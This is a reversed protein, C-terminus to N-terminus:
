MRDNWSFVIYSVQIALICLRIFKDITPMNNNTYNLYEHYAIINVNDQFLFIIPFCQNKNKLVVFMMTCDVFLLGCWNCAFNQLQIHYTSM